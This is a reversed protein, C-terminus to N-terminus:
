SVDRRIFSTYTFILTIICYILLKFCEYYHYIIAKDITSYELINYLMTYPSLGSIITVLAENRFGYSIYGAFLENPIIYFLIIWFLFGLFLSLSQDKFIIFILM